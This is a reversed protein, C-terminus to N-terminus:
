KKQEKMSGQGKGMVYWNFMLEILHVLLIYSKHFSIRFERIVSIYLAPGGVKVVLGGTELVDEEGPFTVGGEGAAPEVAGIHLVTWCPSAKSVSPGVGRVHVAPALQM